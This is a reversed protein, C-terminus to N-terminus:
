ASASPQVGPAKAGAGQVPSIGSEFLEAGLVLSMHRDNEEFILQISKLRELAAEAHDIEAKTQRTIAKVNWGKLHTGLLIDLELQSLEHVVPDGYRSDFVSVGDDSAQFRLEAKPGGDRALFRGQWNGVSTTLKTQWALMDKLYESSYNQDEFFYAIHEFSEKPFPYVISYFDYPALDLGYHEARTFYPSFRDFRIPYVGSPPSLHTLHPLDELYKKYVDEREGPFGILLNWSPQIGFRMCNKLFALNQFATTGKGMLKLTSTNLSEIGPQILTVRANALIEMEHPKLDAKVEYFLASDEPPELKPLVDTLYERPLINDVSEFRHARGGYRTFLDQFLEVAQDTPMARYAMTGGNLGCFTCHSREGWWCGRSTEFPIYPDVQGGPFQRNLDDLFSDYDLHVPVEIPLEEGIIDSQQALEEHANERTFVGRIKEAKGEIKQGVLTPFSVLSPGSFVYDMMDAHKALERGMAAECNAGGMVTTIDPNATKLMKAMAFCAINQTFMSTFGVMDEGALRHKRILRSLFRELGARKALVKGKMAAVDATQQPFYRSFYDQTNDPEEPFAIARFIWDGLGSSYLENSLQKYLDLGMFNALEQNLYLVRVRVQDGYKEETVGRLQTLAISPLNLNAFPMNILSIKYM